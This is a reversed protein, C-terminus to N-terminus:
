RMSTQYYNKVSQSKLDNSFGSTGGFFPGYVKFENLGM